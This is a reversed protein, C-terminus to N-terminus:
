KAGEKMMKAMALDYAAREPSGAAYPNADISEIYDAFAQGEPTVLDGELLEAAANMRTDFIEKTDGAKTQCAQQLPCSNCGDDANVRSSCIAKVKDSRNDDM